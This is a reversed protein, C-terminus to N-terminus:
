EEEDKPIRKVVDRIASEVETDQTIEKRGWPSARKGLMAAGRRSLRSKSGPLAIGRLQKKQKAVDVTPKRAMERLRAEVAGFDHDHASLLAQDLAKDDLRRVLDALTEKKV